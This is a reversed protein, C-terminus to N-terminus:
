RAIDEINAAFIDPHLERLMRLGYEDLFDYRGDEGIREIQLVVRNNAIINRMGKLVTLEHGEVDIKIFVVAGTLAPFLADLAACAIEQSGHEELIGIGGRNDLHDQSFDFRVAGNRDLIAINHARIDLATNLFIQSQLQAFNYRDAEFAHIEDFEGSMWAHLSYLGFYAGIDFFIKKQGKGYPWLASFYDIQSKEWSGNAIIDGDVCSRADLLLRLGQYDYIHIPTDNM